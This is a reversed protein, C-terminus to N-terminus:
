VSLRRVHSKEVGIRLGLRGLGPTVQRPNGGIDVRKKRTVGKLRFKQFNNLLKQMIGRVFLSVGIFVYGGQRLYYNFAYWYRLISKQM